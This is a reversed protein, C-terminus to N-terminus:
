EDGDGPIKIRMARIQRRGASYLVWYMSALLVLRMIRSIAQGVIPDLTGGAFRHALLVGDFIVVGIVGVLIVVLEWSTICVARFRIIVVLFMFITVLGMAFLFWTPIAILVFEAFTM